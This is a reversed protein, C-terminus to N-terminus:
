ELFVTPNEFELNAGSKKLEQPALPLLFSIRNITELTLKSGLIKWLPEDREDLPQRAFDPDVVRVRILQSGLRYADVRAKPHHRVYGERLVELVEEIVPDRDQKLAIM